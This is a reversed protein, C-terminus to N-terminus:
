VDDIMGKVKDLDNIEISGTQEILGVLDSIKKINNVKQMTSIAKYM